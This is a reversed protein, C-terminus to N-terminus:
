EQTDKPPNIPQLVLRLGFTAAVKDITRFSPARDTPKDPFARHLATRDIGTLRGTKSWGTRVIRARLFACVAQAAPTM